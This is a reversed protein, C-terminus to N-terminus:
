WDDVEFASDNGVIQRPGEEFLCGGGLMKVGIVRCLVRLWRVIADLTGFGCM